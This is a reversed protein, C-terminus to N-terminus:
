CTDLLLLSRNPAKICVRSDLVAEGHEFGVFRHRRVERVGSSCGSFGVASMLMLSREYIEESEKLQMEMTARTLLKERWSSGPRNQGRRTQRRSVQERDSRGQWRACTGSTWGPAADIVM